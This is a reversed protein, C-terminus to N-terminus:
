LSPLSGVVVPELLIIKSLIDGITVNTASIGGGGTAASNSSFTSVSVTATTAKIGGGNSGASNGSIISNRVTVTYALIGGGFNATNSSLTSNTVTLTTGSAAQIGGGSSSTSGNTITLGDITVNLDSGIDFVRFQNDGSVTIVGSGPGKVEVSKSIPAPDATLTITGTLAGDFTITGKPDACGGFDIGTNNAIIAERLSCRKPNIGNEDNLTNVVLSPPIALGKCKLGYSVTPNTADNTKFELKATRDGLVSPTCTITTNVEFGSVAINFARNPIISFDGPNAGTLRPSGVELNATGINRIALTQPKTDTNLIASGLDITSGAAPNTVVMAM